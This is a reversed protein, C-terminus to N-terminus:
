SFDQRVLNGCAAIIGDSTRIVLTYVGAPELMRSITATRSASGGTGAHLPPYDLSTGLGPGLSACSGAHLRWDFSRGAEAGSIQVTMQTAGIQSVVGASGALGAFEARGEISAEWASPRPQMPEISCAAVFPILLLLLRHRSHM